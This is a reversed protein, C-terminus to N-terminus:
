GTSKSGGDEDDDEEGTRDGSLRRLLNKKREVVTNNSVAQVKKIMSTSVGPTSLIDKRLKEMTPWVKKLNRDSLSDQM